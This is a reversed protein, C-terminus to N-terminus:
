QSFNPDALADTLLIAEERSQGTKWVKFDPSFYNSEKWRKLASLPFPGQEEDYPDVYHWISRTTYELNLDQTTDGPCTDDGPIEDDDSLEVVQVASIRQRKVMTCNGDNEDLDVIAGVTHEVDMPQDEKETVDIIPILSSTGEDDVKVPNDQQQMARSSEEDFQLLHHQKEAACALQMEGGREEIVIPKPEQLQIERDGAQKVNVPQM